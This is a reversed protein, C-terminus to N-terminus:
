LSEPLLKIDAAFYISLMLRSHFSIVLTAIYRCGEKYNVNGFELDSVMVAEYADRAAEEAEINPYLQVFNFGILVPEQTMDQCEANSSPSKKNRGEGAGVEASPVAHRM